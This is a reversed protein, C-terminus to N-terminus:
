SILLKINTLDSFVPPYSVAYQVSTRDGIKNYHTKIKILKLINNINYKNQTNAVKLIYPSCIKKLMDVIKIENKNVPLRSM